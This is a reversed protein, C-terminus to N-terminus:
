DTHLLVSNSPFVRHYLNKNKSGFGFGFDAARKFFTHEGCITYDTPASERDYRSWGGVSRVARKLSDQKKNNVTFLGHDPSVLSVASELSKRCSGFVKLSKSSNTNYPFSLHFASVIRIADGPLEPLEYPTSGFHRLLGTNGIIRYTKRLIFASRFWDGARRMAKSPEVSHFYVVPKQTLDSLALSLGVLGAGTGAGVDCVYLASPLRNMGNLLGSFAWYALACHSLHYEVMYAAAIYDDDYDPPINNRVGERLKNMAGSALHLYTKDNSNHGISSLFQGFGQIAAVNLDNWKDRDIIKPNIFKPM